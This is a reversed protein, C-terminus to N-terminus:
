HLMPKAAQINVLVVAIVDQVEPDLDQISIVACTLEDTFTLIESCYVCITIDGPEPRSDDNSTSTAANL